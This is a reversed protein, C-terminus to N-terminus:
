DDDFIDFAIAGGVASASKPYKRITKDAYNIGKNVNQAALNTYKATKTHRKASLHKVADGTKKGMFSKGKYLKELFSAGIRGAHFPISM